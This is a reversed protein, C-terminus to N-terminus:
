VSIEEIKIGKLDMTGLGMKAGAQIIPIDDGKLGFLSAGYSDAAVIDHSAIITNMTKVDDLSGGTPGHNMLVRVADIVILKPRLLSTLDAVRQGINFHIQSRNQVLGMLNKMGLTLRGLNHHKAIPVDIIVNADLADGYFTWKKLDMGSPIEAERYKMSAMLEMQGGAARVAEGIGSRVYAEEATGGFPFDMVRVRKAGAGLSLRVLASVVEPNTTAAYEPTRYAVCINPKIIVDDNKKVFREIGGLAKVAAEVLATPSNGHTVALYSTGAPVAPLEPPAQKLEQVVPPVIKAAPLEKQNCALWSFLAGGAAASLGLSAMRKIFDRRSIDV